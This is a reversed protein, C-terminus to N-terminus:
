AGSQKIVHYVVNINKRTKIEKLLIIHLFWIKVHFCLFVVGSRPKNEHKLIHRRHSGIIQPFWIKLVYAVLLPVMFSNSRSDIERARGRM